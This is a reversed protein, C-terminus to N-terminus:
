LAIQVNNLNTICDTILRFKSLSTIPAYKQFLDKYVIFLIM